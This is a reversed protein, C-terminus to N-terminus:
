WLLLNVARETGAEDTKQNLLESVMVPQMGGLCSVAIAEQAV